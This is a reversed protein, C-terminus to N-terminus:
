TKVEHRIAAKVVAASLKLQKREGLSLPYSELVRVGASSVLSPLGVVVDDLGYEGQLVSCVPLVTGDRHSLAQVIKAVVSSIGYYTSKKAAIIGAASKRIDAEITETLEPKYGPVDALAVGGVSASSLAAFSSDGHEGLVYALVDPVAVNLSNALTVRLRATDLMTGTGFVRERPLGSEKWAVYTMVDVPNTVVVIFVPKGQAMVRGVVERVIGENAEQLELRSQGAKRPLGSTIVVIDDEAIEDYDGVRVRVGSTHATAHNIDAAQGRVLEEAVDILVIERATETLALAHAATAGVMGGGGVIFVKRNM